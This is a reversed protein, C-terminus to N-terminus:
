GKNSYCWRLQGCAALIDKGKSKRIFASINNKILKNQIDLIREYDPSSFECGPWENFPILNVKCRIRKKRILDILEDIERDSDNVGKIVVYEITVIKRSKEKRRLIELVEDMPYVKEVPMIKRRTESRGANLSIAIPLDPFEEILEKLKPIIGVTSLTIKRKSINCYKPDTLKILAEKVNAWNDLPEGMGMIVINTPRFGAEQTVILFQDIIESVTLNRKFGQFGTFCFKCGMKCGIQTSICLTLKDRNPISVSEVIEGDKTRYIIKTTGDTSEIKDVIELSILDFDEKLLERLSKPINTMDDFSKAGKKYVWDLIQYLRYKEYGRDTLYEKLEELSLDKINKM